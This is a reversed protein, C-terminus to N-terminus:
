LTRMTMWTMAASSGAAPAPAMSLERYKKPPPMWSLDGARKGGRPRGVPKAAPTGVRAGAPARAASGPMALPVWQPPRALSASYGAPHGRAPYAAGVFPPSGQPAAPPSQGPPTTPSVGSMTLAGAAPVVVELGNATSARPASPAAGAKPNCSDAPVPHLCRRLECAKKRLGPGGNSPRDRCNICRECDRRVCGACEGCRKLPGQPPRRGRIDPSSPQSYDGRAAEVAAFLRAATRETESEFREGDSYAHLPAASQLSQLAMAADDHPPTDPAVGYSATDSLDCAGVIMELGARGHQPACEQRCSGGSGAHQISSSPQPQSSGLAVVAAAVAAERAAVVREREYLAAERENAYVMGSAQRWRGSDYERPSLTGSAIPPQYDSVPFPRYDSVPYAHHDADRRRSHENEENYGESDEGSADPSIYNDHHHHAGHTKMALPAALMLLEEAAATDLIPRDSGVTGRELEGCGSLQPAEHREEAAMWGPPKRMRKAGSEVESWAPGLHEDHLAADVPSGKVM